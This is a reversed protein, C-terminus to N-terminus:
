LHIGYIVSLLDKQSKISFMGVRNLPVHQEKRRFGGCTIGLRETGRRM